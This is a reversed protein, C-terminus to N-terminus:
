FKEDGNEEKEVMNEEKNKNSNQGVCQTWKIKGKLHIADHITEPLEQKATEPLFMYLLVSFIIAGAMGVSPAVTDGNEGSHILFPSLISGFRAFSSALGAMSQRAETPFLEGTYIYVIGFALGVMLKSVMTAFVVATDSWLAIFPTIGLSMACCFMSAMYSNRRGFWESTIFFIMISAAEMLGAYFVNMFRSGSLSNTNLAIAYYTMGVICWSFCIAFIRYVLVHSKFVKVFTRFSGGGSTSAIRNKILNELEETVYSDDKGNMKAVKKLVKKAEENRGKALLWLPTEDILWYYPIYLLGVLGTFRMYWRWDQFIFMIPALLMYGVAFASGIAFYMVFRFQPAVFEYGIITAAMYNILGGFGGCFMLIAYAIESSVFGLFFAVAFQLATFSLFTFRRGFRDSVIGGTFGGIFNGVMYVATYLPKKWDNDCVLQFETTMSTANGEFFISDCSIISRNDAMSTGRARVEITTALTM